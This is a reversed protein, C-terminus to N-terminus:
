QGDPDKVQLHSTDPPPPAKAAAVPGLDSGPPALSFGELDVEVMMVPLRESEDLLNGGAAALSLDSVDVSVPVVVQREGADLLDSGPERLDLGSTDIERAQWPTREAATLVDAGVPALNLGANTLKATQEGVAEAAAADMEEVDVLPLSSAPSSVRQTVPQVPAPQSEMAALREALTQRAPARAETAPTQVSAQVPTQIVPSGASTSALPAAPVRAPRQRQQTTGARALRVDAGIKLIAQQYKEAMELTLDRKLPVAAGTFLANVRAEDIRFLQMMRQKVAPLSHGPLIDGRFVLDYLDGAVTDTM